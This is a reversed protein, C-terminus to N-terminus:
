PGTEATIGITDFRSNRGDDPWACVMRGHHSPAGSLRLAFSVRARTHAAGQAELPSRSFRFCSRTLLGIALLAWGSFAGADAGAVALLLIAVAAASALM